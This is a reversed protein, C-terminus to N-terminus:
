ALHFCGTEFSWVWIFYRSLCIWLSLFFIWPQWPSSSLSHPTAELPYQNKLSNHVRELILYHHHNCLRSFMFDVSSYVKSPHISYNTVQIEVKYFLYHPRFTWLEFSVLTLFSLDEKKRPCCGDSRCGNPRMDVLSATKHQEPRLETCM